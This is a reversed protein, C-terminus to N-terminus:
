ADDISITKIFNSYIASPYCICVCVWVFAFGTQVFLFRIIDKARQNKHSDKWENDDFHMTTLVKM